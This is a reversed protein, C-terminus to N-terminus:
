ASNRVLISMKGFGGIPVCLKMPLGQEIYFKITGNNCFGNVKALTKITSIDIKFHEVEDIDRVNLKPPPIQPKLRSKESSTLISETTSTKTGSSRKCKGYNKVLVIKGDSSMGKITIGKDYGIFEAYSCKSAVLSKCIRTFDTQHVTCNPNKKGRAYEPLKYIEVHINESKMQMCYLVPDSGTKDQARIQIYFNGPEEPRRYIDMQEKKGVTRTKNRLEALNITVPIEESTSSFEYDTLEYTKIKVDNFITCDEDDKQYTIYDKGFIFTGETTTLRLYEILYRWTSGDMFTAFFSANQDLKRSETKKQTNIEDSDTNENEDKEKEEEETEEEENEEESESSEVVKKRSVKAQVQPKALNALKTLAPLGEKLQSLSVGASAM